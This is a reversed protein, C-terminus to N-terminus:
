CVTCTTCDKGAFITRGVTVVLGLGFALMASMIVICTFGMVVLYIRYVLIKSILCVHSFKCPPSGTRNLIDALALVAEVM